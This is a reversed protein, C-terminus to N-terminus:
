NLGGLIAIASLVLSVISVGVAWMIGVGWDRGRGQDRFTNITERWAQLERRHEEFVEKSIFMARDAALRAQENNLKDFHVVHQQYQLKLAKDNASLRQQMQKELASLRTEIYERLTVESM